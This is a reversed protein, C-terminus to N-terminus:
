FGLKIGFTCNLTRPYAGYDLNAMIISNQGTAVSVEPDYGSYKTWIYVNDFNSYLRVSSLGLKSVFKRPLDYSLNISQLRLYSGDEVLRDTFNKDSMYDPRPQNGNPNEPTWADRMFGPKNMQAGGFTLLRHNNGNIVDFGYKYTFFVGLVFGKYSFENFMSGQHKPQTRAVIVKDKSNISGDQNVDVYKVDGPSVYRTGQFNAYRNKYEEKVTYMTKGDVEVANLDELKFIGATKYGLWNGVSEGVRLLGIYKGNFCQREPFTQQYVGGLDTVKNRNLSFNFESTWRFAKDINVTKLGIEVGKNQLNGINTMRSVFGTSTPIPVNLLMDKTKKFYFDASINIRDRFLGLEMGLDFQDTFEWKLDPNGVDKSTIGAVPLDSFSYFSDGMVPYSAYFPIGANGTQGYSFRFRLNSIQRIKRIFNEKHANWSIASAPFYGWRNNAFVSSGDARMSVTLNYRDNFGYNVRGLYSKMVRKGYYTHPRMPDLGQQLAEYGLSENVFNITEIDTNQVFKFNQEFGALIDLRHKGLAKKYNLMNSNVISSNEGHHRIGVGKNQYGRGFDKPFYSKVSNNQYNVGVQIDAFLGNFIEYNVNISGNFTFNSRMTATKEAETVPDIWVGVSEGDDEAMVDGVKRDPQRTLMRAIAGLERSTYGGGSIAGKNKIFSPALVTKVKLNDRLKTQMNLNFTYRKFFANRMTGNNDYYSARISYINADKGGYASLSHTQVIGTKYFEEQWNTDNTRSYLDRMEDASIDTYNVMEGTTADEIKGSFKVYPSLIGNPYLKQNILHNGYERTNLLDLYRNKQVHSVTISGDYTITAKGAKGSKTTIIIVGNAGRSGYIAAASADKLVNISEISGPDLSALPSSSPGKIGTNSGGGYDVEIPMGDIVYLPENNANISTGGRIRIKVGAGMSGDTSVTNLGAIRGTLAQEITTNNTRELSESSVKTISGTVDAARQTSYGVSVVEGLVIGSRLTITFNKKSGVKVEEQDMGVFSVVLVDKSNTVQLSFKGDIDTITGVKTGKVLVNAGPLGSGSEDLVKGTVTFGDRQAWLSTGSFLLLFLLSMLAYRGVRFNFNINM